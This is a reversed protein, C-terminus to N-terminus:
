LLADQSLQVPFERSVELSPENPRSFLNVSAWPYFGLWTPRPRFLPGSGQKSEGESACALCFEGLEAEATVTITQPPIGPLSGPWGEPTLSGAEITCTLSGSGSFGYAEEGEKWVHLFAPGDCIPGELTVSGAGGWSIHWSIDGQPASSLHAHIHYITYRSIGWTPMPM